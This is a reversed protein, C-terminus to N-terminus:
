IEAAKGRYTCPNLQLAPCFSFGLSSFTGTQAPSLAETTTQPVGSTSYGIPEDVCHRGYKSCPFLAVVSSHIMNREMDSSM